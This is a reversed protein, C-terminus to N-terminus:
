HPTDGDGPRFAGDRLVPVVTTADVESAIAVDEGYGRERLERGGVCDALAQPLDHAVARYAALAAAAEASLDDTAPAGELMASVVAGAAWWDELAPRLSDDPWKEGGPIVAVVGDRHAARWNAVFRGAATANRLCAAIVTADSDALVQSITSGNPSPLVLRQVGTARRISGPSLSIREASPDAASGAASRGVALAAGLQEAYEAATEDRFRYPWVTMGADLAVTVSTTFSLTDIVVALIPGPEGSTVALAGALGWECRVPRGAQRHCPELRALDEPQM